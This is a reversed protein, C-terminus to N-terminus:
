KNIERMYINDLRKITQVDRPNLPIKMLQSYDLIDPYRVRKAVGM